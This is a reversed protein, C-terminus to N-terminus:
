VSTVILFFFLFPCFVNYSVKFSLITWKNNFEGLKNDRTCIYKETEYKNVKTQFSFVHGHINSRRCDWLYLKGLILLYNLLTSKSTTAGFLVDWLSLQFHQNTLSSFYSEFHSWFQKSHPCYFMLHYLTKAKYKCFTCRDKDIFGIRFLKTKSYLIYM